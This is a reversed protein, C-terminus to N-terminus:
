ITFGQPLPLYNELGTMEKGFLRPISFIFAFGIIIKFKYSARSIM